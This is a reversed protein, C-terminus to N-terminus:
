KGFGAFDSPDIGLMALEEPDVDCTQEDEAKDIEEANSDIAPFAEAVAKLTDAPNPISIAAAAAKPDFGPGWHSAYAAYAAYDIGPPKPATGPPHNGMGPPPPGVMGPPPPGGHHHAMGPPGPHAMGPPPIMGPPPVMGGPQPPQHHHHQQQKQIMNTPAMVTHVRSGQGGSFGPPPNNTAASTHKELMVDLESKEPQHIAKTPRTDKMAEPDRDQAAPLPPLPIDAEPDLKATESRAQMHAKAAALMEQINMNKPVPNKPLPQRNRVDPMSPVTTASTTTTSTASATSPTPTIDTVVSPPPLGGVASAPPGFKSPKKVKPADRDPTEKKKSPMKGVFPVAKKVNTQPEPTKGKFGKQGWQIAVQPRFLNESSFVNEKPKEKLEQNNASSTVPTMTNWQQDKKRKNAEDEEQRKKAAMEAEQKQKNIKEKIKALDNDGKM